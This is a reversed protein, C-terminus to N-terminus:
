CFCVHKVNIFLHHVPTYVHLYFIRIWNEKYKYVTGKIVCFSPTADCTSSLLKWGTVPSFPM